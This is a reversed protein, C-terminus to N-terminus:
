DSVSSHSLHLVVGIQQYTFAKRNNQKRLQELSELHQNTLQKEKSLLLQLANVVDEKNTLIEGKENTRSNKNTLTIGHILEKLLLTEDLTLQVKLEQLEKVYPNQTIKNPYLAKIIGVWHHLLLLRKEAAQESEKSEKKQRPIDKKVKM